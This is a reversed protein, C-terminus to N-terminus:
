HESACAFNAADDTSGSGKYRAVQPYPCIPRTGAVGSEPHRSTKYRTAIIEEPATGNEVWRELVAQIGREPDAGTGPVSGLITAGPGDGCHQMGPVM